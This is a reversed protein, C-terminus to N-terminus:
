LHSFSRWRSLLDLFGISQGIREFVYELRSGAAACPRMNCNGLHDCVACSDRSSEVSRPDCCYTDCTYNGLKWKHQCLEGSPTRRYNHDSFPTGWCSLDAFISICGLSQPRWSLRWVFRRAASLLDKYCYTMAVFVEVNHNLCLDFCPRVYSCEFCDLQAYMCM